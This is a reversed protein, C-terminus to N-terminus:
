GKRFLKYPQLLGKERNLTLVALFRGDVSYARYRYPGEITDGISTPKGEYTAGPYEWVVKLPQGHQIKRELEEDLIVAKYHMLVFDLTYLLDLWRNEEFAEQLQTLTLADKSDFPGSKLRELARLHAGCGLKQGLDHALSRIYTGRGCEVEMIIVPPSWQVIELRFIHTRRKEREVTIGARALEYLRKGRYKLASYMPPTQEIPGRFSSLAEEVQKLSIGSPDARHTIKGETDYTDTSVGLEVEARYVKRAEALFETVKTGQGLCIPLVGRANPDLTGAHGVKRQHSLSKVLRVIEFSTSGTPKYVNLIGDISM